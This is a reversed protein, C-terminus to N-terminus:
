LPKFMMLWLIIALGIMGTITFFMPSLFFTRVGGSAGVRAGLPIQVDPNRARAFGETMYAKGLRNMLVGIMLLLGLSTWLWRDGWWRGMIGLTVGTLVLVVSAIPAGVYALQMVASLGEIRKPGPERRLAFTVSAVAGHSLFYAMASLVHLFQLLEYM